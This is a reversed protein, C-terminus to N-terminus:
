GAQDESPNIAVYGSEGDRFIRLAVAGGGKKEGLASRIAKVADEPTNVSHGGVGLVVDGPRLGVQEAVSGSRVGAIVVGKMGKPLDLQERVDPTIPGLALGLGQPGAEGLADGHQPKDDKLTAVVVPLDRKDGDRLVTLTAKSGPKIDAVAVALDRPQNVPAGNIAVVVDGPAVGAKEAPSGEAVTAILAGHQADGTLHLASAMEPDIKQSEVGLYGRVVTGKDQLQAVVDRVM